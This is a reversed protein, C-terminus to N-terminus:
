YRGELYLNCEEAATKAEKYTANGPDNILTMAVNFHGACKAYMLKERYERGRKMNYQIVEDLKRRALTLYRAALQHNPFISLAGRFAEIARSYQGKKYDRFGQLYLAQADKWQANRTGEKEQVKVFNEKRREYDQMRSDIEEPSSGLPTEEIKKKNGSLMLWFGVAILGVVLYFVVRNNGSPTAIPPGAQGFPPFPAVGPPPPPPFNGQEIAFKIQPPPVPVGPPPTPVMMPKPVAVLAQTSIKELRMKTSGVVFESGPTLMARDVTEGNVEIKNKQSIDVIELGQPTFSIQAHRRSCKMDTDLIIDNEASRGITIGDAMLEFEVGKQDGSLIVIKFPSSTQVSSNKSAVQSM